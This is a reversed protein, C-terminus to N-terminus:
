ILGGVSEREDKAKSKGKTNDNRRVSSVSGSLPTIKGDVTAGAEVALEKYVITGTISGTSKIHLRGNVTLDGEFRGAVVAENIEVTGYFVGTEAIEMMSAGKLAAEVTGEVILVDCSEIEGSMTIGEGIILKRGDLTRPEQTAGYAYSPTAPAAAAGYAPAGPYGGGPMRPPTAMTPARNFSPGTGSAPAAAPSDNSRTPESQHDNTMTSTETRTFISAPTPKSEAPTVTVPKVVEPAPASALFAPPEVKAPAPPLAAATPAAPREMVATDSAEVGRAAKVIDAQDSGQQENNRPRHFM